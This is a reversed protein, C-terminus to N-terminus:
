LDNKSEIYYVNKLLNKNNIYRILTTHSVGLNKAAARISNYIKISNIKSNKVVTIHGTRTDRDKFKLLTKESHKFGLM